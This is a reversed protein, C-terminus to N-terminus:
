NTKTIFERTAGNSNSLRIMYEGPALTSGKSYTFTNYGKLAYQYTKFISKGEKSLIEVAVDGNAESYYEATVMSNFPNPGVRQINVSSATAARSKINVREVNSFTSKGEFSVQRLRYFSTGTMPKYDSCQYNQPQKSNGAAKVTSITTFDSGNLSREISFYDSNMECTMEWNLEVQQNKTRASFYVMDTPLSNSSGSTIGFIGLQNVGKRSATANENTGSANSHKGIPRWPSSLNERQSIHLKEYNQIGPFGNASLSLDFEGGQFGNDPILNWYAYGTNMCVDGGDSMPLGIKNTNGIELKCTIAGGQYPSKTFNLLASNETNFNGVPFEVPGTTTSSIWRRFNGVVYGNNKKLSGTTSESVGLTLINKDTIIRGAELSLLNSVSTTSQLKCNEENNIVLAYVVSPLADGTKQEVGGNYTYIARTSFNRAGNNQINGTMSNKSIGEPSGIMIGAGENLNFDGNGKLVYNDMRLTTGQKVNYDIRNTINNNVVFFQIKKSGTFNIEGGKNRSTETISGMGNVSIDGLLNIIGKKASQSTNLDLKGGIINLEGGITMSSNNISNYSNFNLNGANVNVNGNVTIENGNIPNLCVSGGQIYLSGNIQINNLKGTKDFYIDRSGTSTIYIDNQLGSNFVDALDVPTAQSISNWKFNGFAQNINQPVTMYVGTIECFSNKEWKAIPLSGGDFAHEYTAKDKVTIHNSAVQMKGGNNIFKGDIVLQGELNIKANEALITNETEAVADKGIELTGNIELQGKSILDTGPGNVIKLSGKETILKGEEEVIIQDATVKSNIIVTHGSCIQITNSSASPSTNTTVWDSGNYTEWIRPTHWNGSSVTRFDGQTSAIVTEGNGIQFYILLGTVAAAFISSTGIFIQKASLRQSQRQIQRQKRVRKLNPNTLYAKM